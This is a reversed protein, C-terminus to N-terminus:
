YPGVWGGSPKAWNWVNENAAGMIVAHMNGGFCGVVIVTSDMALHFPDFPWNIGIIQNIWSPNYSGSFSDGGASWGQNRSNDPGEKVADYCTWWYYFKAYVCAVEDPTSDLVAYGTVSNPDMVPSGNPYTVGSYGSLHYKYRIPKTCCCKIKSIQSEIQNKKAVVDAWRMQGLRDFHNVPDNAVFGYLNLGGKEEIPDRSAWRGITPDFYAHVNLASLLVVAAATQVNMMKM